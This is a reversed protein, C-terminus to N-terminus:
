VHLGRNGWFSIRLHLAYGSASATACFLLVETATSEIMGLMWGGKKFTMEIYTTPNDGEVTWEAVMGGLTNKKGLIRRMEVM